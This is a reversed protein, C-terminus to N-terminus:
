LQASSCAHLFAIAAAPDEACFVGTGAVCVDVGAQACIPATENNVGGDVQVLVEPARKKLKRVKDMMDPMFKQGGFGPEVTMVLVMYLQDLYPFVTEIPTGPRLAVAPKAGCARIEAITEMPDDESELHFSIIDAGADRFRKVYSKPHMIMLHVDFPRDTLPRLAQVVPFGFTINPVFNGDMIDLHVWDTGAMTIKEVEKQLNKFDAALVSPSVKM